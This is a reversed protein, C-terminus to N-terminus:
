QCGRWLNARDRKKSNPFHTAPPKFDIAAEIARRLRPDDIRTLYSSLTKDRKPDDAVAIADCLETSSREFFAFATSAVCLGARDMDKAMALVVAKDSQELTVAFRLIALLWDRIRANQAFVDSIHPPERGLQGPPCTARDVRSLAVTAMSPDM